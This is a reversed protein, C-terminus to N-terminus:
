SYIDLMDKIINKIENRVGLPKIVELYNKQSLLWMIIGKGFVEAEILYKGNKKDTIKATPLRDLIAELSPGWYRFKIKILEGASMFQIKKRFDGEEFRNKEPIYFHEDLIKYQNIRDVRYTAPFREEKGDIYAILYFYFENFIVGVSKLKRNVSSKDMRTYKVNMYKRKRICEGVDWLIDILNKGHQLEVYHYRENKLINNINEREEPICQQIMKNLLLSMEEKIFARSDLLIKTIATIEKYNLYGLRGKELIYGKRSRCYKLKIDGGKYCDQFYARLDNIDRQISKEDVGFEDALQKKNIIEGKNLREYLILIRMVKSCRVKIFNMCIVLEKNILM